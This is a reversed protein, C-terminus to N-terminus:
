QFMEQEETYYTKRSSVMAFQIPAGTPSEKKKSNHIKLFDRVEGGIIDPNSKLIQKEADQLVSKISKALAKLKADPIKNSISFPSIGADWLIEDAYANGIGRIANQDLLVSKIVAKKTSLLKKLFSFDVEPSLADPSEKTQPNLTATAAGQFDTLVLGKDKFYMEVIPFKQSNKGDFFHLKGRLMMHLGLVSGNKFEFYLEKGERYVKNLAQGELANKLEKETVKLKKKNPVSIKELKRGKLERDLNRSFVQLDPLEPM